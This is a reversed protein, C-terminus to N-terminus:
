QEKEWSPSVQMDPIGFQGSLKGIQSPDINGVIHVITLERPEAALVTIGAIKGNTKRFYIQVNEGGPKKSQVNVVPAWEPEKLQSRVAEVDDMSYQGEKAFQYSRVYVGGLGKIVEKAAKEEPDHESMFGSALGLVNSDLTINVVEEAKEELADLSAPFVIDQPGGLLALSAALTFSILYKCM